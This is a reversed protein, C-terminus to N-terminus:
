PRASKIKYPPSLLSEPSNPGRRRSIFLTHKMETSVQSTARKGASVQVQAARWRLHLNSSPSSCLRAPKLQEWGGMQFVGWHIERNIPNSSPTPELRGRKVGLSCALSAVSGPRAVHQGDGATAQWKSIIQHSTRRECLHSASCTLPEIGRMEVQSVPSRRHDDGSDRAQTRRLVPIFEPRSPVGFQRHHCPTARGSTRNRDRM